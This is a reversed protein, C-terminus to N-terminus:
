IGRANLATKIAEINEPSLNYLAFFIQDILTDTKKIKDLNHMLINCSNNFEIELREQFVREQLDLSIKDQNEKLFDLFTDFDFSYFEKLKAKHKLEELNKHLERVLWRLFGQSENALTTHCECMQEALSSLFDHLVDSKEDDGIIQGEENKPLCQEIIPQIREINGDKLYTEFLQELNELFTSKEETDTSFHIKRIPILDLHIKKLQPTTDRNTVMKEIYYFKFISSNIFGLLYLPNYQGEFNFLFYLSQEPYIGTNEYAAYLVTGTKRLLVKPIAGLKDVDTTRGTINEKVFEFYLCGNIAYRKVNAGKIMVIQNDNKRTDTIKSSKGGFGGTTEATKDLEITEAADIQEIAEFIDANSFFLFPTYATNIYFNRSIMIHEKGFETVKITHSEESKRARLGYILTDAIVGPFPVKYLLFNITYDDLLVKRLYELSENFGLRDPVIYSHYGGKALLKLSQLIFYEFANPMYTNDPFQRELYAVDADDFSQARHKGRVSAWPPNGIVADFGTRQKGFIDRGFFVEPFELEWNFFNKKEAITIAIPVFHSKKLRAWEEESCTFTRASFRGYIGTTVSNGFYIATRIDAMTKLIEYRFSKKYNEFKREKAHIDELTEEEMSELEKIDDVLSQIFDKPIDIRTQDSAQTIDPHVTLEDLFAGLLSNGQKLRHDLFNLPKDQSITTLWLSVKALEVALDNLDVGYICHSVIERKAWAITYSEDDEIRGTDIDDQLALYLQVALFEVAAVLFHGSGMANDLVKISLIAGSLKIDQASAKQLRLNVLKELSGEIIVKVINDPTYYSGTSKREGRDTALYTEGAKVRDFEGFQIFELPQKRKKNFEALTVWVKKTKGKVVLDHSAIKLKYELLGEYISGLHRIKLTSYDVFTLRKTEKDLSRTVLDISVALYSDGIRWTEINPNKSPEFLGGNYAPIYLDDKSINYAESGENILRFLDKLSNWLNTSAPSFPTASNKKDAIENKIRYFSYTRKYTENELNLLKKGEAYLLFLFRYLLRMTSKYVMLRTDPENVDLDNGRWHFFGDAIKKIAKYINDKLNDGIEQAYDISGKYVKDIFIEGASNSMFAEKRFFYYFYKFGEVDNNELLKVLDVEYFVDLPKTKRYLRWLRGNSLIGWTPETEHIYMWMQFSPNKRINKRHKGGKDLKVDWQKVEGVAIAKTYFSLTGKHKHATDLDQRNRFFGYDPFDREKTKAQVEFPRLIMKFIKQFFRLEIQSENLTPLFGMEANYLTQIRQFVPIHDNQSWEPRKQIRNLLYYDSFLDKNIFKFM